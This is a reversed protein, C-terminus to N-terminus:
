SLILLDNTHKLYGTTRDYYFRSYLRREINLIELKGRRIRWFSENHRGHEVDSDITGDPLFRLTKHKGLWEPNYFFQVSCGVIRAKLQRGQYWWRLPAVLWGLLLQISALIDPASVPM